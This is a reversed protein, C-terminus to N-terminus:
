VGQSYLEALTQSIGSDNYYDGVAWVKGKPLAVVGNLFNHSTGVNPSPVVKWETGNWREILTQNVRGNNFDRVAWVNNSARAAVGSLSNVNSLNASAIVSWSSGDWHETLTNTTRSDSYHGVAWIDNASLAALGGLM